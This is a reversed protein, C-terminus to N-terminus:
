RTHVQNHLFKSAEEVAQLFSFYFCRLFIWFIWLKRTDKVVRYSLAFDPHAQIM